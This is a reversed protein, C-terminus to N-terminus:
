FIGSSHCYAIELLTIGNPQELFITWEATRTDELTLDM